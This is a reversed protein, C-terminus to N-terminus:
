RAEWAQWASAVMSRLDHRASWDLESHIRAPSAVAQASDGPRRPGVAPPATNGTVEAIMALVERVSLGIGRGANLTLATGPDATLRDAAAIHAAAIDEVHIYDRVCTGDATPYDDGFVMPPEGAALREFTMPILNFAGVDGLDPSAAGAVNFYRINVYAIGCAQAASRVMWEGALKTEGYPSLPACPDDEDIADGEPAGYVAASSSFVLRTVKHDAMGQLLIRLGELNERYYFLPEAVSEGVQKKGALHVVGQIDGGRLVAEVAEPDLVSGVVLPVDAPVRDRVGTSLDDLVVTRHGAATMARVVHTGVYGAGGTVLWTM